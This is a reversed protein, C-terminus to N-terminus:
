FDGHKVTSGMNRHVKLLYYRLLMHVAFFLFFNVVAICIYIGRSADLMSRTRVLVVLAETLLMIVGSKLSAWLVRAISRRIFGNEVNFLLIAALYLILIVPLNEFLLMQVDYNQVIQLVTLSHYFTLWLYGGLLYSAICIFLDILILFITQKNEKTQNM